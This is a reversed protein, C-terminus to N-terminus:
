GATIHQRQNIEARLEKLHKEDIAIRGQAAVWETNLTERLHV